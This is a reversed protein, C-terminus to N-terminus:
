KQQQKEREQLILERRLIKGSATKPIAQIFEVERLKKYPAVREEIFGMLQQATAESGPRLVVFAKPIEGSEPDAKPIVAADLVSPHEMLLGELEAPAVQYGRYKIMEKLRDLITVYGEEDVTVLDGTRLWGDPTLTEATADPRGWYGKMVQPGYVLLEGVEGPGLEAGTEIDVVKELTDSVAPGVTLPKTRDLPNANTLPSAETLGYGQLIRAGLARSVRAGVEPPLPAAGSLMYRLSSTDFREPNPLNALALAAPPVLYLDTLRHEQVLSLCLEPDFRPLVIQTAGATLGGNMLVTMGYIHYFPLFDLLKSYSSILGSALLQRINTTLNFHTLMVGKPLGTTGSSYPLVALDERPNIQVPAPEAPLGEIMEDLSDIAFVHRLNPLNARAEEVLNRSAAPAFVAIAGADALQLEVERERYLPNLTTAVGGARLIGHMVVPYEICNPAFIGVVSGKAVGKDQLLRALRGSATWLQSYTYARGGPDTLATRDPYRRAAAEVFSSLPVEPYPELSLWPSNWIM